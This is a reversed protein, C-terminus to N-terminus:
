SSSTTSASPPGFAATVVLIPVLIRCPVVTLVIDGTTTPVQCAVAQLHDNMWNSVRGDDIRKVTVKPEPDVGPASALSYCRVLRESGVSLRFTLFQGARYVFQEAVESPFELVFSRSDATEEVVRSIKVRHYPGVAGVSEATALQGSDASM